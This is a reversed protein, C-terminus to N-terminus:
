QAAFRRRWTAPPHGTVQRFAAGFHQPHDYGCQQAIAATKLATSALLDCAHAIRRRTICAHVTCGLLSRFHRELSRRALPVHAAVDDVTIPDCAHEHIYRIAAAVHPNEVATLASSRRTNVRDVPILIPETPPSGGALQRLLEEAAAYGVAEMNPDVASLPTDATTCILEDDSGAVVAVQEPVHLDQEHLMNVLMLGTYEDSTFLGLPKPLQALWPQIGRLWPMVDAPDFPPGPPDYATVSVTPGAARAARQFGRSRLLSFAQHPYGFYALHRYGREILYAAAVRGIQENDPLVYTMPEDLRSGSVSVIPVGRQLVHSTLAADHYGLIVADYTLDWAPSQGTPRHMEVYLRVDRRARISRHIGQMAARSFAYSGDLQVLIRFTPQM